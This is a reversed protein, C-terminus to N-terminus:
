LLGWRKLKDDAYSFSLGPMDLISDPVGRSKLRDYLGELKEGTKKLEHLLRDEDVLDHLKKAIKIFDFEGGIECDAGWKTVRVIGEPDAKMPAFDYIPSLKIENEFLIFSTNRGHNDTNGFISNLLDRKVWEIVFGELDFVFGCEQVMNSRTIKEVLENITLEHSLISGPGKELMSYVSEMAYRNAGSSTIEVDFRPLWLSPVSGISDELRMTTTDITSFGMSSIEHYFHYEARLIDCDIRSRAGRPFKVLYYLDDKRVSSEQYTDIWVHDEGGYRLLLKPAEGGAGTAGGAVGGRENAYNLFDSTRKKVDEINFFIMKHNEMDIYDVSDKVRLNGVPSITAFKLLIFNQVDSGLSEIDLHTVWYKKSAGSPIIDDLFRLKKNLTYSYPVPPYNISLAHNDDRWMYDVAYHFDYDISCRTYNSAGSEPFSIDCFDLWKNNLHVQLTVKDM